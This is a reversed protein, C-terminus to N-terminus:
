ISGLYAHRDKVRFSSLYKKLESTMKINYLAEANRECFM